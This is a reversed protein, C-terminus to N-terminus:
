YHAFRIRVEISQNLADKLFDKIYADRDTQRKWARDVDSKEKELYATAYQFAPPIFAIVIAAFFSGLVFKGFDLKAKLRELDLKRLELNDPQTPTSAMSPTASASSTGVSNQNDAM